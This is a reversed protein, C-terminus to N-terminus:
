IILVVMKVFYIYLSVYNEASFVYVHAETLTERLSAFEEIVCM